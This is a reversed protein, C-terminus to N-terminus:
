FIRINFIVKENFEYNSNQWWVLIVIKDIFLYIFLSFNWGVFDFEIEHFFLVM